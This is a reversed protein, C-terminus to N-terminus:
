PREKTNTPIEIKNIIARPTSNPSKFVCCHNVDIRVPNKEDIKRM